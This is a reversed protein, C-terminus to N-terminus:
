PLEVLYVLFLINTTSYELFNELHCLYMVAVDCCFYIHCDLVMCKHNLFYQKLCSLEFIKAEFCTWM